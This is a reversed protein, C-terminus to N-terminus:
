AKAMLGHAKSVRAALVALAAVTVCCACFLQTGLWGHAQLIAGAVPTGVLLGVGAFSFSMGMRTGVVNLSPSLSVVTTPPLSVFTGSFFGYLLCFVIIGATTHIDIWCYALLASVVACPLLMNLPGTKDALFNPIIRGFVSGANMIPLMYFALAKSMGAQSTAYSAIYFFPIYLGMFGFFEGLNFMTFPVERFARLELLRRKQPPLARVRMVAICILMMGLMLFAIVRTAWGFGIRPQLRAFVIPYIIGGLSSGAAAIGTAFSKKTTFYTSVIAVSPIFLCGSGLGITIGQALMVQWYETCLSTMFMGFVVLFSGTVLLAYFYGIDFLPGTAVGVILLLCAQVSGIWSIDSNSVHRLLDDKYYAQFVGFSNIVGWTNLFLLFSGVVQLWARLGGNPIENSPKPSTSDDSTHRADEM